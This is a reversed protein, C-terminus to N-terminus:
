VAREQDPAISGGLRLHAVVDRLRRVEAVLAPVNDASQAFASIVGETDDGDRWARLAVHAKAARAEIADLDLEPRDLEFAAVRIAEEPSLDPTTM